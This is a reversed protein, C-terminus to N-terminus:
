RDGQFHILRDAEYEAEVWDGLGGLRWGEIINPPCGHRAAESEDVLGRRLASGVCATAPINHARILDSWHQHWDNAADRGVPRPGALQVGDGHLFVRVVEHGAEIAASATHWASSAAQSSQPAGTIILALKVAPDATAPL